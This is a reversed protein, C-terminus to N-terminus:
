FKEDLLLNLKLVNIRERGLCFPSIGIFPVILGGLEYLLLNKQLLKSALLPVYKVGRLVLPILAVIVLANCQLYADKDM